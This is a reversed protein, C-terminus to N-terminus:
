VYGTCLLYCLEVVLRFVLGIVRGGNYGVVSKAFLRQRLLSEDLTCAQMDLESRRLSGVRVRAFSDVVNEANHMVKNTVDLLTQAETRSALLVCPTAVRSHIRRQRTPRQSRLETALIEPHVPARVPRAITFGAYVVSDECRLLKPQHRLPCRPLAHLVLNCQRGFTRLWCRSAATTHHLMQKLNLSTHKSYCQSHQSHRMEDNTFTDNIFAEVDGNANETMKKSKTKM